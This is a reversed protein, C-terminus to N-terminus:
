REAESRFREIPGSADGRVHANWFPVVSVVDSEVSVSVTDTGRDVTVTPNTLLGTSGSLIANAAATGDSTSGHEAQTARAADQAAATVVSRAHFILAAQVATLFLAIVVVMIIVTSTVEGNEDCLRHSLGPRASAAREGPGSVDHRAFELSM